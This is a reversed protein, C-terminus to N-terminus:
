SKQRRQGEKKKIKKTMKTESLNATAKNGSVGLEKKKELTAFIKLNREKESGRNYGLSDLKASSKKKLVKQSKAAAPENKM